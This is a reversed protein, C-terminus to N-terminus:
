AQIEKVISEYKAVDVEKASSYGFKALVEKAKDTKGEAITYLRKVQEQSIKSSSTPKPPQPLAQPKVNHSHGDPDKDDETPICFVQFCAYKYAIAMAKNSAKDGSDMAEGITTSEIFTGDEAYFKHNIKLISYILNSGSKSTREERNQEVVQPVIFVKHKALIPQLSNMVDDIGRYKFGAGQTNTRDKSIPEIDEMIKTISEFINM